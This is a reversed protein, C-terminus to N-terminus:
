VRYGPLVSMLETSVKQGTVPRFREQRFLGDYVCCAVAATVRRGMVDACEEVVVWIM